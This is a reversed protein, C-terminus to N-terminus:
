QYSSRRGLVQVRKEYWMGGDRHSWTWTGAGQKVLTYEVCANFHAVDDVPEYGCGASWITGPMVDRVVRSAHRKADGIISKIQSTNGPLEILLHAHDCSISIVKLRWQTLSEVLAICIRPRVDLPLLVKKDARNRRYQLLEAHENAPPPNRYDGSSHIRHDRSRFGRPSGHHWSNKSNITVFRWRCGLLPM